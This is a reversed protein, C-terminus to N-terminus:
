IVKGGFLSEGKKLDKAEKEPDHPIGRKAMMIVCVNTNKYFTKALKVSNYFNDQYIHHNKGLYKDLVSLVTNELKKGEAAYIEMNCVYGAMTECVKRVLVGYKTVKGPNYTRSKLHGRWPIMAEDLSLEKEPRYVSRFKWLFYEYM